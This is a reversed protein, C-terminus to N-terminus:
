VNVGSVVAPVAFITQTPDPVIQSGTRPKFDPWPPQGYYCACGRHLAIFDFNLPLSLLGQVKRPNQKIRCIYCFSRCLESAKQTTIDEIIMSAVVNTAVERVGRKCWRRLGVSCWYLSLRAANGVFIPM